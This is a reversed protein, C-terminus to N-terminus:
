GQQRLSVQPHLAGQPHCCSGQGPLHRHPERPSKCVIPGGYGASLLLCCCILWQGSSYSFPVLVVAITCKLVKIAEAIIKAGNAHLYNSALNLSTMAGMAPLANALAIVGSMDLEYAADNEPHQRWFDRCVVSDDKMAGRTLYSNALNLSTMAGKAKPEVREVWEITNTENMFAEVITVEREGYTCKLGKTTGSAPLGGLESSPVKEKSAMINRFLAGMDQPYYCVVATSQSTLHVM